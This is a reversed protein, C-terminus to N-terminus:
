VRNSLLEKFMFESEKNCEEVASRLATLGNKIDKYDALTGSVKDTTLSTKARALM